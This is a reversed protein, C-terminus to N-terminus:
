TRAPFLALAALCQHKHAEGHSVSLRAGPISLGYRLGQRDAELVWKALQALRAETGPLHQVDDWSLVLKNAGGGSFRKVLIPQGRAVAKWAISRISDGPHYNRFGMFDETGLRKGAQEEGLFQLQAPLATAGAPRPYVIVRQAGDYYSWARFLGLPFVSTIRVRGLLVIGRHTTKVLLEVAQIRDARLNILLEPDRAPRWLRRPRQRAIRIAYRAACARNNLSLPFRAEEGVFVPLPAGSAITLGALNRYTHLMSVLWLSALLFTLVYALNNNYNMAGLLMAGLLLAFMCGQATPLIYVRRRTLTYPAAPVALTATASPASV